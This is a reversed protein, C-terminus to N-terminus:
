GQARRERRAAVIEAQIEEATMPPPYDHAAMKDMAGFLREAASERPANRLPTELREPTLLGAERAERELSDPLTLELTTM